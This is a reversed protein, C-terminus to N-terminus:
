GLFIRIDFRLNEVIDMYKDKIIEGLTDQAIRLNSIKEVYGKTISAALQKEKECDYGCISAIVSSIKEPLRDSLYQKFEKEELGFRSALLTAQEKVSQAKDSNNYKQRIEKEIQNKIFSKASKEVVEPVGYTFLFLTGFLLLGVLGAIRLTAKM